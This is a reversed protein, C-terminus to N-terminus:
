VVSSDGGAAEWVQTIADAADSEPTGYAGPAVLVSTAVVAALGAVLGTMVKALRDPLLSM